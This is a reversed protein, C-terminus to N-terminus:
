IFRVWNPGAGTEVRDLVTFTGDHGLRHLTAHDSAEGVVILREGDPAVAFGRPQEETDALSVVQALRGEGDLGVSALTSESRESCVLYRGGRAVHLDAGWVLHGAKPDAGFTSEVLGRGTDYAPVSEAVDLRGTFPNRDFRIAMGTFETMLYAAREDASLILHRAGSGPAVHAAPEELPTLAGDAGLRYQAVLDEGLSVFYAFGGAADTVVCHLHAHGVTAGREGVVGDAVRWTAGWGGHYSAGLLLAGDQSLTLYALPDPVAARSVETLAGSDRDLHLTAIAPEPEKTACYVLDRASDVAFTSCGAGVISNRVPELADAGLRYAGITGDKAHGILVLSRYTM